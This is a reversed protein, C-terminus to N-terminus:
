AHASAAPGARLEEGDGRALEECELALPEGALRMDAGLLGVGCPAASSPRVCLLLRWALCAPLAMQVTTLLLQYRDGDPRLRCADEPDVPGLDIRCGLEPAWVPGDLAQGIGLPAGGLVASSGPGLPLSGGRAATIRVRCGAVGAIRAALADATAGDCLRGIWAAEAPAAPGALRLLLARHAQPDDVARRLQAEVLLRLLRDELVDLLGSMASSPELQALEHALAAPLPSQPGALGLVATEIRDGSGCSLVEADAIALSRPGSLRAQPLAWAAALLGVSAPHSLLRDRVWAPAYAAQAGSM